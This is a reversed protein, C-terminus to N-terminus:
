RETEARDQQTSTERTERESRREGEHVYVYTQLLEGKGVFWKV